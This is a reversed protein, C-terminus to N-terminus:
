HGGGGGTNGGNSGGHPGTGDCEGSGNSSGTGDCEGTGSGNAGGSNGNGQGRRMGFGGVAAGCAPVPEGEATYHLRQEMDASLIADFTEADLYQPEYTAGQAALARVFARLHNRSGKALNHAVLELHDNDTISLLDYLDALDMDEIEAGVTLASVLDPEGEATLSLFLDGLKSDSFVGVTDDVVPDPIGYLEVVLRVLDMHQQEARAINAFIPLQWRDALTLYVDRALKEEERLYVVEEEEAPSLPAVEIEDFLAQFGGVCYPGLQASARRQVQAEVPTTFVHSAIAVAAIAVFTTFRNNSM